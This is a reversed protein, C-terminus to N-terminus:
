GMTIRARETYRGPTIGFEDRFAAIYGSTTRYGVDAAADSVPAGAALMALSAYLRARTRWQGYTSGTDSVFARMVTKTSVGSEAAWEELSRPDAPDAVIHEAIRAAIGTRPLAMVDNREVASGLVDYLLEVCRFRRGADLEEDTTHLLLSSTLECAEFVHPYSWRPGKPRLEPRAYATVLRGATLLTMEHLVDGPIWVLHEHSLHWRANGVDIQMTGERMWALQHEPHRHAGYPTVAQVVIQHAHFDDFTVQPTATQRDLHGAFWRYTEDSM